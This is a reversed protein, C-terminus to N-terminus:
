IVGMYLMGMNYAFHILVALILGAFRIIKSNFKKMITALVIVTLIHIGLTMVAGRLLFFKYPGGIFSYVQRILYINFLKESLFFGIGAVAGYILPNMRNRFSLYPMIKVIEEITALALMAFISFIFGLPLVLYAIISEVIYVFPVLFVMSFIVFLIRSKLLDALRRYFIMMVHKAKLSSFMVENTFTLAAFTIFSITMFHYSILSLFIEWMPIEAGNEISTIVNLPSILALSSVGSFVNPLVIFFFFTFISSSGILTLERYSRALIVTLISFSIIVLSISTFVYFIKIAGTGDSIQFSYVLNMATILFVYPLSKGILIQWKSIPADFLNHLNKEIREKSMSLSMLISLLIVPSLMTMNRYLNKFPFSVGLEEPYILESPSEDDLDNIRQTEMYGEILEEDTLKSVTIGLKEMETERFDLNEPQPATSRRRSERILSRRRVDLNGDVISTYNIEDEIVDIRIPLLIGTVSEDRIATEKVIFSNISDFTDSLKGILVNSKQTSSGVLKMRSENELILYADIFGSSLAQTMQNETSFKVMKLEFNSGILETAVSRDIYGIKYLNYASPLNHNEVEPTVLLLISILCVLLIVSKNVNGRLYQILEYKSIVLTKPLM